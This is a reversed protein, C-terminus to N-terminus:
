EQDGMVLIHCLDVLAIFLFEISYHAGNTCYQLQNAGLERPLM